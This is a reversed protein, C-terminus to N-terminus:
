ASNELPTGNAMSPLIKHSQITPAQNALKSAGLNMPQTGVNYGAKMDTEGNKSVVLQRKEDIRSTSGNAVPRGPEEELSDTRLNKVM